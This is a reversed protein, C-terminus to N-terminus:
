SGNSHLQSPSTLTAALAQTDSALQASIRVPYPEVPHLARLRKPIRSLEEKARARAVEVSERSTKLREGDQMMTVLLARGESPEDAGALLDYIASGDQEVRFVQKPRPYTAKDASLKMRPQGAYAVLKYAMDLSPADESVALATGVGFGQIPAGRELLEAISFEDLGGSAFIEVQNLGAQDLLQRTQAALTALDGSDLRVARVRFETGLERALRIVNRVGELTDYTDVLLTSGPFRRVFARFADLETRHAQVYSHAMTGIVPVGYRQGAQVNSSGAFGALFAARAVKLAADIGHARRMGFDVILRGRAADVLRIAKSAACTQVQLQNMLLTELLQAEPLPAAVEMLPEQAFVPTGEPFARVEGSFRFHELYDLLQDSFMRLSALYGLADPSFRFHEICELADSAGAALLFNRQKPLRRVFLSFVAKALLGEALYADVMTLEYLDTVLGLKGPSPEVRKM